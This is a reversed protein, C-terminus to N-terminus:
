RPSCTSNATWGRPWTAGPSRRPPPPSCRSTPPAPRWRGTWGACTRCWFPIVFGLIVASRASVGRGRGRTAAGVSPNVFSTAEVTRLGAAALRDIFELKVAAPVPNSENQLGDRPGVEVIRVAGPLGEAPVHEPLGLAVTVPGAALGPEATRRDATRLRVGPRPRIAQGSQAPGSEGPGSAQPPYGQASQRAPAHTAARRRRTSSNPRHSPTSGPRGPTRVRTTTRASMTANPPDYRRGPGLDAGQGDDDQERARDDAILQNLTSQVKTIRSVNQFELPQDAASEVVLSGYGMIRGWFSVVTEINQIRSLPIQHERRRVLGTRFFIHGTSLVFHETKWRLFPAIGAM